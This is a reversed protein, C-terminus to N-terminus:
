KIQEPIKHHSKNWAILISNVNLILNNVASSLRLEACIFKGSKPYGQKRGMPKYAVL